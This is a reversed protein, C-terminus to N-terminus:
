GQVPPQLHRQTVSTISQLSPKAQSRHLPSRHRLRNHAHREHAKLQSLSLYPVVPPPLRLHPSNLAARALSIGGQLRCIMEPTRGPQLVTDLRPDKKFNQKIDNPLTPGMSPGFLIFGQLFLVLFSAFQLKVIGAFIVHTYSYPSGTPERYVRQNASQDPLWNPYTRRM